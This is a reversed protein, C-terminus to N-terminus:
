VCAGVLVVMDEFWCAGPRMEPWAEKALPAATTHRGEQRGKEGQGERRGTRYDEVLAGM